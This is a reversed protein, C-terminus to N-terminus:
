GNLRLLLCVDHLKGFLDSCRPFMRGPLRKAFVVRM